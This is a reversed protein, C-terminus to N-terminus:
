GTKGHSTEFGVEREIEQGPDTGDPHLPEQRLKALRFPNERRRQRFQFRNGADSRFHRFADAVPLVLDIHDLFLAPHLFVSDARDGDLVFRIRGGKALNVIRRMQKIYLPLNELPIAVGDGHDARPADTVVPAFRRSSKGKLEGMGTDGDDGSEGAADVGGRVFRSQCRASAGDRHETRSDAVEVRRLIRRQGVLDRFVASNEGLKRYEIHRIPLRERESVPDHRSHALANEHDLSRGAATRQDRRVLRHLLAAIDIRHGPRDIARSRFAAITEDLVAGLQDDVAAVHEVLHRQQIRGLGALRFQSERIRGLIGARWQVGGLPRHELRDSVIFQRDVGDDVLGREGACHDGRGEQFQFHFAPYLLERAARDHNLWAPGTM